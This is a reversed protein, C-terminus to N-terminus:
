AGPATMDSVHRCARGAAQDRLARDCRRPRREHAVRHGARRRGPEEAGALSVLLDDAPLDVIKGFGGIYHAREPHLAFFGFDPFDAYGAAAPHRGPLPGARNREADPQVEGILTLRAGQWPTRRPAPQM